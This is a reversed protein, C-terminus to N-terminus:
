QKYLTLGKKFLGRAYNQKIQSSSLMVNYVHVQDIIGNFFLDRAANPDDGIYYPRDRLGNGIAFSREGQLEGDYYLRMTLTDIDYTVIAHHWKGKTVVDNSALSQYVYGYLKGDTRIWLGLEPGWADSFLAMLEAPPINDTKFWLEITNQGVDPYWHNMTGLSVFDDGDFSLAYGEGSPTDQVFTAGSIQGPSNNGSSDSVTAGDNLDWLGIPDSILLRQVSASYQLINAVRARERSSRVSVFIIAALLGLIAIVVLLEIITFGKKKM